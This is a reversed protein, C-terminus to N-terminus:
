FSTCKQQSKPIKGITPTQAATNQKETSLCPHLHKAIAVIQVSNGVQDSWAMARPKRQREGKKKIRSLKIMLIREHSHPLLLNVDIISKPLFSIMIM